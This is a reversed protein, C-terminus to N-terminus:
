ARPERHSWDDPDGSDSPSLGLVDGATSVGLGLVTRNAYAFYSVVQNIELVEGESLGQAMLQEVDAPEMQGPHLTLREAYRLLAQERADFVGEWNGKRLAGHIAEARADDKLLKRLGARHHRVCYDCGNLMSTYVGLMELTWKPTQNAFHHLVNKYLAMHGELTHPRQGHVTLINDVTNGPGKIRDYIERLRGKSEGYPIKRIWSM